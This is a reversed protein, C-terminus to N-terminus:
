FRNCVCFIFIKNEWNKKALRAYQISTDGGGPQRFWCFRERPTTRWDQEGSVLEPKRALRIAVRPWNGQQRSSDVESSERIALTIRWCDRTNGSYLTKSIRFRLTPPRSPPKM